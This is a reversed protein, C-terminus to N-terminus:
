MRHAHRQSYLCQLRLWSVERFQLQYAIQNWTPRRRTGPSPTQVRSARRRFRRRRHCALLTGVAPLTLTAPEPVVVRLRLAQASGTNVIEHEFGLGPLVPFDFVLGQDLINDALVVDFMDGPAPEFVDDGGFADILQVQLESGEVFSALGTVSLVDYESVATTGGLEIELLGGQEYDGEITLTGPSDAPSIRGGKLLSFAGRYVGTGTFEGSIGFSRAEITGNNKTTTGRGAEYANGPIQLEAGLDM